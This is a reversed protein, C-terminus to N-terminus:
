QIPLFPNETEVTFLIIHQRLWHGQSSVTQLIKVPLSGYKSENIQRLAGNWFTCFCTTSLTSQKYSFQTNWFLMCQLLTPSPVLFGACSCSRSDKTLFWHWFASIYKNQRLFPLTCVGWQEARHCTSVFAWPVVLARGAGQVLLAPVGPHSLSPCCQKGLEKTVLPAQPDVVRLVVVARSSCTSLPSCIACYSRCCGSFRTPTFLSFSLSFPILFLLAFLILVNWSCLATRVWHHAVQRQQLLTSLQPPGSCTPLPTQLLFTAQGLEGTERVSVTDEFPCLLDCLSTRQASFCCSFCVGRSTEVALSPQNGWCLCYFASSHPSWNEQSWQM